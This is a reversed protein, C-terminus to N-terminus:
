SSRIQWRGGRLARGPAPWARGCRQLGDRLGVDALDRQAVQGRHRGGQPGRGDLQAGVAQDDEGLVQGGVMRLHATEVCSVRGCM